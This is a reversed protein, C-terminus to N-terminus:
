RGGKNEGVGIDEERTRTLLIQVREGTSASALEAKGLGRFYSHSSWVEAVITSGAADMKARSEVKQVSTVSRRERPKKSTLLQQEVGM